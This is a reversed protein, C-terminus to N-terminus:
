HGEVSRLQVDLKEKENDTKGHELGELEATSRLGNESKSIRRAWHLTCLNYGIASKESALPLKDYNM